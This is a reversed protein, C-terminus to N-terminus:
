GNLLTRNIDKLNRCGTLAMALDLEDRLMALAERATPSGPVRDAHILQLAQAIFEVEIQGGLRLKVDWPGSAPLDRLLRARMAAADARVM